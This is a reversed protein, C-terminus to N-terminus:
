QSRIEKQRFKNTKGIFHTSTGMEAVTDKYEACSSIQPQKLRLCLSSTAVRKAEIEKLVEFQILYFIQLM